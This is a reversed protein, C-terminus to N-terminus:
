KPLIFWHWGGGDENDITDFAKLSKISLSCTMWKLLCHLKWGM